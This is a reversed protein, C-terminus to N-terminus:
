NNNKNSIIKKTKIAITGEKTDKLLVGREKLLERIEDARKYDKNKRALDREEVLKKEEDTLSLLNYDIFRFISDFNLFVDYAKKVSEEDLFSESFEKGKFKYVLNMLKNVYSLAKSVNLDDSLSDDFFSVVSNIEEVVNVSGFINNDKKELLQKLYLYFETYSLLEKEKDELLKFTFNLHQRYHTSILLLRLALPNFGKGIIDRLTYFNGLSKSMKRGDVLLHEIHFWYNVFNDNLSCKECVSESQAIENTHHPFILDVGGSHLDFTEGLYKTSMASCEIHWGPRGKGITTNWFVDGDKETYFKWLAFDQPNEKDYEDSLVRNSAGSKLTKLNLHALNGYKKFKKISFYIGDETKYAYGKDLMKEIMVVMENIHETAKPMIDPLKISLSKLDEIFFETYKETFEKLSVGEEMSGKITKDDVDTINMVHLVKYGFYELTRKLLDAAVFSRLNGIHAFNYVTPGCSYFGVKDKLFKYEPKFEEKKRTLTNYLFLKKKM